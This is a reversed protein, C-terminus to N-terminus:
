GSVRWVTGKFKKDWESVQRELSRDRFDDKPSIRIQTCDCPREINMGITLGICFGAIVFLLGCLIAIIIFGRLNIVNSM